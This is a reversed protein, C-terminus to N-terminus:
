VPKQGSGLRRLRAALLALLSGLQALAMDKQPDWIDGQQGNYDDAAGAAGPAGGGPAARKPGGKPIIRGHVRAALALEGSFEEVPLVADIDGREHEAAVHALRRNFTDAPMAATELLENVAVLMERAKGTAGSLDAREGVRGQAFARQLRGIETTAVDVHSTDKLSAHFRM